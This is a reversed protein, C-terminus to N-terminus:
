MMVVENMMSGCEPFSTLGSTPFPEGADKLRNELVRDPKEVSMRDKRVTIEIGVVKGVKRHSLKGELRESVGDSPRFTM